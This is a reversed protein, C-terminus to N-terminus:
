PKDGRTNSVIMWVFGIVLLLIGGYFGIAGLIVLPGAIKATELAFGTGCLGLGLLISVVAITMLRAPRKM